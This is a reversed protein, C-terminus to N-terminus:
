QGGLWSIDNPQAAKDSVLVRWVGCGDLTQRKYYLRGDNGRGTSFHVELWGDATHVRKGRMEKPNRSLLCLKTYLDRRDDVETAVFEASGREFRIEPLLIEFTIQLEEAGRRRSRRPPIPAAPASSALEELRAKAQRLELDAMRLSDEADAWQALAEDRDHELNSIIARLEEDDRM